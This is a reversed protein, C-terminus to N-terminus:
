HASFDQHLLSESFLAPAAQERQAASPLGGSLSTMLLIFAFSENGRM